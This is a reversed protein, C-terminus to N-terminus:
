DEPKQRYIAIIHGITQILEAAQASCIAEIIQLRDEKEQGAIRIKILEHAKLAVDIENQVAPTLGHQGIMVVPKLAHVLRRLKIKKQATSSM